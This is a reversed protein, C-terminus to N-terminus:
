QFSGILLAGGTQTNDSMWGIALAGFLFLAPLGLTLFARVGGDPVMHKEGKDKKPVLDVIMAILLALGTVGVLVRFITPWPAPAYTAIQVDIYAVLPIMLIGGLLSVAAAFWKWAVEGKKGVLAAKVIKRIAVLSIVAIIAATLGTGIGRPNSAIGYVSSIGATALTPFWLAAKRAEDDPTGDALDRFMAVLMAVSWWGFAVALIAGVSGVIGGFLGPLSTLWKMFGFLAWGLVLGCLATILYAVWLLVKSQKVGPLLKKRGVTLLIIVSAIGLLQPWNNNFWSSM